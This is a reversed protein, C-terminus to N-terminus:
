GHALAGLLLPTVDLIRIKPWRVRVQPLTDTILIQKIPLHSLRGRAEGSFIGHTAALRINRAGNQSVLKVAESLTGGTDIIDDVILVDKGRVDGHLYKAIAVNPRPRVKEIVALAPKPKFLNSLREVGSVFGADPSVIVHPPHKALTQAILPLASLERVFPRFTKRIRDSHVDILILESPNARQLLEAVMVGISGEGPQGPRDQRAYGLYPVVLATKRAGNEAALRLLALAEFLSGPDPLISAIVAVSEGRVNEELRYGREGDSFLHSEYRSVNYGHRRLNKGPHKASEALFLKLKAEDARIVIEKPKGGNMPRKRRPLVSGFRM